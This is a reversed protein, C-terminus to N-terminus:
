RMLAAQELGADTSLGEHEAELDTAEIRGKGGSTLALLQM